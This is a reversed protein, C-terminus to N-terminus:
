SWIRNELYKDFIEDSSIIPYNECISQALILRDFPDKHHFTLEQTKLIHHTSIPLLNFQYDKKINDIFIGLPQNLLLKETKIKIAMEWVSVDSFYIDTTKFILNRTKIPINLPNEELWILVQTDLLIAM